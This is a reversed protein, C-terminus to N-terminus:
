GDADLQKSVRRFTEWKAQAGDVGMLDYRWGQPVLTGFEM